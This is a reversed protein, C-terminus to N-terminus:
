RERPRASRLPDMAPRVEAAARRWIAEAEAEAAAAVAAAKAEEEEKEEEEEGEAAAAAAVPGYALPLLPGRHVRRTPV